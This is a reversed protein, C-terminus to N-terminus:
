KREMKREIKAFIKSKNIRVKKRRNRMMVFKVAKRESENEKQKVNKVFQNNWLTLM